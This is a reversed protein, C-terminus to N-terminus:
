WKERVIIRVDGVRGKEQLHVSHDPTGEYSGTLEGPALPGGISERAGLHYIGPGPLFLTFSGDEGTTDSISEPRGVMREDGYAMVYVGGAPGGDELLVMGTIVYGSGAVGGRKSLDGVKAPDPPVLQLTGLETVEGKKVVVPNAGYEGRLGGGTLPGVESGSEKKMAVIDYSGERLALRFRGDEGVRAKTVFTPGATIGRSADYAYVFAGKVSGPSSEVKGTAFTGPDPSYEGEEVSKLHIELEKGMAPSVPEGSPRGKLVRERGMVYETKRAVIYFKGKGTALVFRGDSATESVLYPQGGGFDGENLYASVSAKAVPEGDFLVRGTIKAGPDSCASLLPLLSALVFPVLLEHLSRLSRSSSM